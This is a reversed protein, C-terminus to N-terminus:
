QQNLLPFFSDMRDLVIEATNTNWRPIQVQTNVDIPFPFERGIAALSRSMNTCDVPAANWAYIALLMGTHWNDPNGVQARHLQQVKNLFRHFREALIARHNEASVVYCQIGLKDCISKILEAATSGRDVMVMKPLGFPIFFHQFAAQAIHFSSESPICAGNAYGTLYDVCTLLKKDKHSENSKGPSWIDMSLVDFPADAPTTKLIHQAKHNVLNVAKCAACEKCRKRIDTAMGPWWYRAAIRWYTKAYDSHGAFPSVHLATFIIHRM